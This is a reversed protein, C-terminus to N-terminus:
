ACVVPRREKDRWMAIVDARSCTVDIFKFGSKERNRSSLTRQLGSRIDPLKPQHLEEVKLHSSVLSHM